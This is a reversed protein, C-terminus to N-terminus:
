GEQREYVLLGDFFADADFLMQDVARAIGTRDTFVFIDLRAEAAGDPRRNIRMHKRM